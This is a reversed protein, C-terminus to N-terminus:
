RSCCSGNTASGITSASRGKPPRRKSTRPLTTSRSHWLEGGDRPLWNCNPATIYDNRSAAALIQASRCRGGGGREPSRVPPADPAFPLFIGVSAPQAGS